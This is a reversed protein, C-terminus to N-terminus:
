LLIQKLYTRRKRAGSLYVPDYGNVWCKSTMYIRIRVYLLTVRKPTEEKGNNTSFDGEANAETFTTLFQLIQDVINM